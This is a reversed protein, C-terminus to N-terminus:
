TKSTDIVQNFKQGGPFPLLSLNCGDSPVMILSFTTTLGYIKMFKLSACNTPVCSASYPVISFFSFSFPM